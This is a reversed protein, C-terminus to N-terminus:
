NTCMQLFEINILNNQNAHVIQLSVKKKRGTKVNRMCYLCLLANVDHSKLM